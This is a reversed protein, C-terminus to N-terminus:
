VRWHSPGELTSGPFYKIATLGQDRGFYESLMNEIRSELLALDIPCAGALNEDLTSLGAKCLERVMKFDGLMVAWHLLTQGNNDRLDVDAGRLIADKADAWWTDIQISHRTKAHERLLITAHRSRLYRGRAALTSPVSENVNPNGICSVAQGLRQDVQRPVHAAWVGDLALSRLRDRLAKNVLELAMLTRAYSHSCAM